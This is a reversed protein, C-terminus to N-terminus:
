LSLLNYFYKVYALILIYGYRRLEGKDKDQMMRGQNPFGPGRTKYLPLFFPDLYLFLKVARQLHFFQLAKLKELFLLLAILPHLKKGVLLENPIFLDIHESELRSMSHLTNDMFAHDPIIFEVDVHISVEQDMKFKRQMRESKQTDMSYEHPIISSNNAIITSEENVLILPQVNEENPTRTFADVYRDLIFMGESHVENAYSESDGFHM